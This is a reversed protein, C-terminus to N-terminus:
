TCDSTDLILTLASGAISKSSNSSQFTCVFNCSVRKGRERLGFNDIARGCETITCAVSAPIIVGPVVKGLRLNLFFCVVWVNSSYLTALVVGTKSDEVSLRSSVVVPNIAFWGLNFSSNLGVWGSDGDVGARVQELGVSATHNGGRLTTCADVVGHSGDTPSIVAGIVVCNDLVGPACAPTVLTVDVNGYLAALTDASHVAVTGVWVDNSSWQM